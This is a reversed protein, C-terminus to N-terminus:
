LKSCLCIMNQQITLFFFLRFVLRARKAKANTKQSQIKATTHQLIELESKLNTNEARSQLLEKPVEQSEQRSKEALLTEIMKSLDEIEKEADDARKVYQKLDMRFHLTITLHLTMICLPGDM